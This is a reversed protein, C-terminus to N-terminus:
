SDTEADWADEAFLGSDSAGSEDESVECSADDFVEGSVEDFVDEFVDEFREHVEPVPFAIITFSYKDGPIYENVLEGSKAADYQERMADQAAQKTAFARTTIDLTGNPYINDRVLVFVKSM